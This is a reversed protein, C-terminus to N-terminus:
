TTPLTLHTYSVPMFPDNLMMIQGTLIESEKEGVRAKIDDAMSQTRAQFAEIAKQLRAKEKEKGASVVASYDLDQEQICVARGIGIGSSAGIGHLTM